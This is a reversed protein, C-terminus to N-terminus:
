FACSGPQPDAAEVGAAFGSPPEAIAFGTSASGRMAVGYGGTNLHARVWVVQEADVPVPGGSRTFPQENVHSHALIRRYALSEDDTVVEWWDAYRNCGTDPSRVEVSFTYANPQGSVSVSTVDATAEPTSADMSADGSSADSEIQADQETQSADNGAASADIRGDSGGGACGAALPMLAVHFLAMVCRRKM